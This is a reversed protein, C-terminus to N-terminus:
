GIQKSGDSYYKTTSNSIPVGSKFSDLNVEFNRSINLTPQYSDNFYPDIEMKKMLNREWQLTSIENKEFDIGSQPSKLFLVLPVKTWSRM